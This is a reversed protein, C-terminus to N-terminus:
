GADEWSLPHGPLLAQYPLIAPIDAIEMDLWYTHGSRLVAEM